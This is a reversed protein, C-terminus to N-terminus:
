LLIYTHYLILSSCSCLYSCSPADHLIFKSFATYSLSVLIIEGINWFVYEIHTIGSKKSTFNLVIRTCTTILLAGIITIVSYIFQLGHNNNNSKFWSSYEFPTYIIIFLISFIGVFGLIQLNTKIDLLYAPIKKNM